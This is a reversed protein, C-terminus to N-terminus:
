CLAMHEAFLKWHHEGHNKRYEALALRIEMVNARGEIGEGWRAYLDIPEQGIEERMAELTRGALGMM